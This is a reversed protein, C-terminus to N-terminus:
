YVISIPSQIRLNCDECDRCTLSIFPVAVHSRNLRRLKESWGQMQDREYVWLNLCGLHSFRVTVYHAYRM